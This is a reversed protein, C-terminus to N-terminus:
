KKKPIEIDFSTECGCISKALPNDIVKFSEGILESVYDIKSGNILSLSIPDIIVRAGGKEFVRDDHQIEETLSFQNQYGHCGGSETIVRLLLQPNKEKKVINLIQNVARETLEIKFRDQSISPVYSFSASKYFFTFRSHQKHLSHIIFAMFSLTYVRQSM